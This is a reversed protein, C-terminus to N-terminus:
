SAGVAPLLAVQLLQACQGHIAIFPRASTGAHQLGPGISHVYLGRENGACALRNVAHQGERRRELVPLGRRPQHRVQPRHLKRNM